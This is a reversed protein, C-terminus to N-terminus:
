KKFGEWVQNVIKVLTEVHDVVRPKKNDGARLDEELERAPYTDTHAESFRTEGKVRTVTATVYGATMKGVQPTPLTERSASIELIQRGKEPIPRMVISLGDDALKELHPVLRTRVLKALEPYVERDFPEVLDANAKFAPQKNKQRNNNVSFKNGVSSFNRIQM